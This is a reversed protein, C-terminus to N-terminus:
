SAELEALRDEMESAQLTGVIEELIGTMIQDLNYLTLNV